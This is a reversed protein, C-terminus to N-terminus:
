PGDVSPARMTYAQRPLELEDTDRRRRLLRRFLLIVQQRFLISHYSYLYFNLALSAYSPLRLLDFAFATRDYVENSDYSISIYPYIVALLTIPLNCVIVSIASVLLLTIISRDLNRQQFQLHRRYRDYIIFANCATVILFPVLAHTALDIWPWVTSFFFVYTPYEPNADCNDAANSNPNGIFATTLHINKLVFVVTLICSVIISRRRTAHLRAQLPYKVKLFRDISIAVVMWSTMDMATYLLFNRARCYWVNPLHLRYGIKLCHHLGGILALSDYISLLLFYVGCSPLNLKSISFIVTSLINGILGFFFIMPFLIAYIYRSTEELENPAQVLSTSKSSLDMTLTM